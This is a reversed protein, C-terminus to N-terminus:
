NSWIGFLKIVPLKFDVNIFSNDLDFFRYIFGYLDM